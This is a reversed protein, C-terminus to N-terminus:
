RGLTSKYFKVIDEPPHPCYHQQLWASSLIVEKIDKGHTIKHDHGKIFLHEAGLRKSVLLSVFSDCGIYYEAFKCLAAVEKIPPKNLILGRSLPLDLDTDSIVIVDLNKEKSIKEVFNWDQEEIQAIDNRGRRTATPYHFLIYKNPQINLKEWDVENKSANSLFSSKQYKRDFDKFIAVADIASVEEKELGFLKLGIEYNPHFDPRFHWFEVAAPELRRMVKKGVDDDITYQKKLNPYGPNNKLLPVLVKGWRCGWYIETIPDKEEKTLLADLAMMDGIGASIYTKM